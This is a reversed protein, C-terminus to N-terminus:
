VRNGKGFWRQVTKTEYIRICTWILTGLAALAPLVETLTGLVVGFSLVDVITKVEQLLQQTQPDNFSM